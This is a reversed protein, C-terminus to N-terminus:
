FLSLHVGLKMGIEKGDEKKRGEVRVKEGREKGSVIREERV